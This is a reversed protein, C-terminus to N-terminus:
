WGLEDAGNGCDFRNDCLKMGHVCTDDGCDFRYEGCDRKEEYDVGDYCNEEPLQMCVDMLM